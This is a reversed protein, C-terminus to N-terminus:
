WVLLSTTNTLLLPFRMEPLAEQYPLYDTLGSATKSTGTYGTTASKKRKEQTTATNHHHQHM